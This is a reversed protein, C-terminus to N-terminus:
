LTETVVVKELRELHLISDLAIDDASRGQSWPLHPTRPYKTIQTNMTIKRFILLSLNSKWYIFLATDIFTSKFDNKMEYHTSM